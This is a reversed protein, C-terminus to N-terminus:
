TRVSVRRIRRRRALQPSWVGAFLDECEDEDESDFLVEEENEEEEDENGEEHRGYSGRRGNRGSGRRGKVVGGLEDVEEVEEELVGDGEAWNEWCSGVVVRRTELIFKGIKYKQSEDEAAM